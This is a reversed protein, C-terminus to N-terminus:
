YLYEIIINLVKDINSVNQYTVRLIMDKPVSTSKLSKTGLNYTNSSILKFDKLFCASMYIYSGINYTNGINGDLLICKNVKDINICEGLNVINNGDNISILSGLFVVDLVTDSVYITNANTNIQATNIGIITNPAGYAEITDGVSDNGSCFTINLMSINYKWSFDFVGTSNAEINLLKSEGRYHGGTLISEQNIRVTDVSVRDVITITTEDISHTENNPCKLPSIDNWTYVYSSETNCYLRYKNISM